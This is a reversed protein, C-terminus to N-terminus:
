DVRFRFQDGQHSGFLITDGSVLEAESVSENTHTNLFTGNTSELDRLLPKGEVIGIWAHHASVRSDPIMVNCSQHRGVTIGAAPIAYSRGKHSGTLGVLHAGSPAVPSAGERKLLINHESMLPPRIHVKTADPDYEEAATAAQALNVLPGVPTAPGSAKPEPQSQALELTRLRTWLALIAILLVAILAVLASIILM